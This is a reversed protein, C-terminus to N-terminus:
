GQGQQGGGGNGGRQRRQGSIVRQQHDRDIDFAAAARQEHRRL